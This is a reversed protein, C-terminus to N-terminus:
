SDVIVDCKVDYRHDYRIACSYNRNSVFVTINKNKKYCIMHKLNITSTTIWNLMYQGYRIPGYTIGGKTPFILWLWLVFYSFM